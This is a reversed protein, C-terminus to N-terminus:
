KRISKTIKESIFYSIAIFFAGVFLIALGYIFSGDKYVGWLALLLLFLTELGMFMGFSQPEKDIKKLRWSRYRWEMVAPFVINWLLKTVFLLFLAPGFNDTIM